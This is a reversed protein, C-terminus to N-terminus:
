IRDEFLRGHIKSSRSDNSGYADDDNLDCRMRPRMDLDLRTDVYIYIYKCVCLYTHVEPRIDACLSANCVCMYIYICTNICVYRHM